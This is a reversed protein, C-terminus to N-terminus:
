LPTKVGDTDVSTMFSSNVLKPLTKLFFLSNSNRNISDKLGNM